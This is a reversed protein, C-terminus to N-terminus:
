AVPAQNLETLSRMIPVIQKETKVEENKELSLLTRPITKPLRMRSSSQM